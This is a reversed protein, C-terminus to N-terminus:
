DKQKVLDNVSAQVDIILYMEAHAAVENRSKLAEIIEENSDWWVTCLFVVIFYNWQKTPKRM